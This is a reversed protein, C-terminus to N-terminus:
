AANVAVHTRTRGRFLPITIWSLAILIIIVHHMLLLRLGLTHVTALDAISVRVVHVVVDVNLVIAIAVMPLLYRVLGNNSRASRIPLRFRTNLLIVVVIKLLLLLHIWRRVRGVLLVERRAVRLM